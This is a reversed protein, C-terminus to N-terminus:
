NAWCYFIVYIIYFSFSLCLIFFLLLFLQIIFEYHFPVMRKKIDAKKSELLVTPIGEVNNQADLLMNWLEEMLRTANKGLFGMIAVQM